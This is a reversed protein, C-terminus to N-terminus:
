IEKGKEPCSYNCGELLSYPCFKRYYRFVLFLCGCEYFIGLYVIAWQIFHVTDFVKSSLINWILLIISTVTALSAFILWFVFLKPIDKWLGVVLAKVTLVYVVAGLYAIVNYTNQHLSLEYITNFAVILSHILELAAVVFCSIQLYDRPPKNEEQEESPM